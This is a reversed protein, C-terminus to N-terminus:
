WPAELDMLAWEGGIGLAEEEVRGGEEELGVVWKPEGERGLSEV